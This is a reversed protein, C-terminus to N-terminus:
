HHSNKSFRTDNIKKSILVINVKISIGNKLINRTTYKNRPINQAITDKMGGHQFVQKTLIYHTTSEFGPERSNSFLANDMRDDSRPPRVIRSKM